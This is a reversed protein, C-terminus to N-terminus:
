LGSWTVTKAWRLSKRSIAQSSTFPHICYSVTVELHLFVCVCVSGRVTPLSDIFSPTSEHEAGGNQLEGAATINEERPQTGCTNSQCKLPTWESKCSSTLFLALSATTRTSFLTPGHSTAPPTWVSYTTLSFVTQRILVQLWLQQNRKRQKWNSTQMGDTNLLLLLYLLLVSVPCDTEQSGEDGRWSIFCDTIHLGSMNTGDTYLIGNMSFSVHKLGSLGSDSLQCQQIDPGKWLSRTWVFFSYDTKASSLSFLFHGSPSFGFFFM